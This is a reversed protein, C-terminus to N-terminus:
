SIIFLKLRATDRSNPIIAFDMFTKPNVSVIFCYDLKTILAM